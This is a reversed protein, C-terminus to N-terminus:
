GNTVEGQLQLVKKHMKSISGKDCVCNAFIKEWGMLRRKMQNATEKASCFSEPKICDWKDVNAKNGPIKIVSGFFGNHLKYSRIDWSLAGM